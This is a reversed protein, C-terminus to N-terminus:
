WESASRLIAIVAAETRSAIELKVFVSTVHQKVTRETICFRDAIAANSQCDGLAALVELERDTLRSLDADRVWAPIRVGAHFFGHTGEHDNNRDSPLM